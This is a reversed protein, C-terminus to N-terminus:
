ILRYGIGPRLVSALMSSEAADRHTERESQLERRRRGRGEGYVLSCCSVQDKLSSMWRLIKATFSSILLFPPLLFPAPYTSFSAMKELLIYYM